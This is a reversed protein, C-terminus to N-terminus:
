YSSGSGSGGGLCGPVMGSDGGVMFTDDIRIEVVASAVGPIPTHANDVLTAEFVYLTDPDPDAASVDVFAYPEGTVVTGGGLGAPVSIHVHGQGDVLQLGEEYPEPYLQFNDVDVAAMFTSCYIEEASTEPFIFSISPAGSAAGSDAASIKPPPQCAVALGLAAISLLLRM